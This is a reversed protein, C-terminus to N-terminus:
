VLALVDGVTTGTRAATGAPLEIVDRAKRVIRSARQPPMSSILHVVRREKDVFIVDIPFGMMFTHVSNCPAILLGEGEALPPRFLLGRLRAWYSRAVGCSEALVAGRSENTVRLNRKTEGM